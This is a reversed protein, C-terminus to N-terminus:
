ERSIFTEIKQRSIDELDRLTVIGEVEGENTVVLRTVRKRSMTDLAERVTTNIDASIPDPTMIEEVPVDMSIGDAVARKIDSDTMFGVVKGDRTIVLFSIDFEVMRQVGIRVPTGAMVGILRKTVMNRIPENMMKGMSHSHLMEGFRGPM